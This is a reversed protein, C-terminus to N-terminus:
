LEIVKFQNNLKNDNIYKKALYKFNFNLALNQAYTCITCNESEISVLLGKRRDKIELYFKNNKM